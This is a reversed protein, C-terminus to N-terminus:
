DLSRQTDATAPEREPAVKQSRWSIVGYVHDVREGSSSLPLLAGRCLVQYGAATVFDYEATVPARTEIVELYRSSFRALLSTEEVTEFLAIGCELGAEDQLVPGVSTFVPAAPDTVDLMFGHSLADEVSAPDFKSLRLYDASGIAREWYRVARKHLRRELAAPKSRTFRRILAIASM